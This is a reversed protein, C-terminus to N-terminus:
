NPDYGTNASYYYSYATVKQKVVAHHLSRASGDVFATSMEAGHAPIKGKTANVNTTHTIQHNPWNVNSFHPQGCPVETWYIVRSAKPVTSPKFGWHAWDSSSPDVKNALSRAWPAYKGHGSLHLNTGYDIRPLVQVHERRTPCEFVKPIPTDYRSSFIKFNYTGVYGKCLQELMRASISTPGNDKFTTIWGDNDDTYNLCGQILTRVNNLCSIGRGRERAQQLAPMLMAALIAIIAIVVLLEILTFPHSALPFSLKKERSFFNEKGRASGKAKLFLPTNQTAGACTTQQPASAGYVDTGMRVYGYVGSGAASRWLDSKRFNQKM